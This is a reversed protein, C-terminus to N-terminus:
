IVQNVGGIVRKILVVHGGTDNPLGTTPDLINYIDYDNKSNGNSKDAGTLVIKVCHKYVRYASYLGLSEGGTAVKFTSDTQYISDEFTPCAEDLAVDSITAYNTSTTSSMNNVTQKLYSGGFLYEDAFNTTYGTANSPLNYLTNSTSVVGDAGEYLSNCPSDTLGNTIPYHIPYINTPDSANTPTKILMYYDGNVDNFTVPSSIHFHFQRYTYEDEICNLDKTRFKQRVYIYKYFNIDTNGSVYNIMQASGITNNYYTRAKNFSTQNNFTIKLTEASKDRIYATGSLPECTYNNRNAWGTSGMTNWFLYANDSFQNYINLYESYLPNLIAPEKPPLTVVYYCNSALWNVSINNVNLTWGTNVIYDCPFEDLCKFDVYWKTATNAPADISSQTVIKVYDCTIGSLNIVYKYSSEAVRYTEMGPTYASDGSNVLGRTTQKTGTVVGVLPTITETVGEKVAYFKILDALELATFKFALYKESGDNPINFITERSSAGNPNTFDYTLSHSYTQGTIGGDCTMSEVTTGSLCLRLDPSYNAEDSYYGDYRVGDITVYKIVPYIIGGPVIENTFPQPQSISPDTNGLNGSTFQLDGDVANLRWEIAYDGLTGASLELNGASIKSYGSSTITAGSINTECINLFPCYTINLTLTGM